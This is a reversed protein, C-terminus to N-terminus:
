KIVERILNKRKGSFHFMYDLLPTEEFGQPKRIKFSSLNRHSYKKITEYFVYGDWPHRVTDIIDNYWASRYEDIWKTFDPHKRNIFVFGTEAHENDSCILTALETELPRFLNLDFPKNIVVDGDLWLMYDTSITTALFAFSMGKKWFKHKKGGIEWYQDKPDYVNKGDIISLGPLNPDFGSDSVALKYENLKTWTSLGYRSVSRYYPESFSTVVTTNM